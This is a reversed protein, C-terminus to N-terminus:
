ERERLVEEAHTALEIKTGTTSDGAMNHLKCKRMQQALVVEAKLIGRCLLMEIPTSGRSWEGAHLHENSRLISSIGASKLKKHYIM